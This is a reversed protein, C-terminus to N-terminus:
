EEEGRISKLHRSVENLCQEGVLNLINSGLSLDKNYESHKMLHEEIAVVDIGLLRWGYTKGANIVVSQSFSTM